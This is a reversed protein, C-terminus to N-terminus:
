FTVIERDHLQAFNEQSLASGRSKFALVLFTHMEVGNVTKKKM